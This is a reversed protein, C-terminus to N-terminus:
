GRRRCGWRSRQISTKIGGGHLWYQDTLNPGVIGGADPGHCSVCYKKFNEMGSKLAAPDKLQTLKSEDISGQTAIIIQRQLTAATLEEQYEGYMLKSSKFVHFNLLYVLGFVISGYFLYNFWPPVRNDLERIGDFDEDMERGNESEPPVVYNKAKVIVAIIASLDGELVILVYFLLVILIVTLAATAALATDAGSEAGTSALGLAPILAMLACQAMFRRFTTLPFHKTLFIM